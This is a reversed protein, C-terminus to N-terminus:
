PPLCRRDYHQRSERVSHSRDGRGRRPQRLHHLEGHQLADGGGVAIGIPIRTGAADVSGSYDPPILYGPAFYNFVTPPYFLQQGLNTALGTLNNTDNVAAGLGRMMAALYFVPERLKGGTAPTATPDDDAARAEPDLLIAMVVSALNGRVGNGDDNFVAAVRAVYAPSPNSTVLHQILQKSVFPAVNPHAFINDLAVKLDQAATLGAPVVLGNLLTKSTTDHNSEFPVM